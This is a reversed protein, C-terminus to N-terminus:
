SKQNPKPDKGPRIDGQYVHFVVLVILVIVFVLWSEAMAGFATAMLLSGTIFGINLKQRAYM